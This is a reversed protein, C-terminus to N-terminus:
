DSFDADIIIDFHFDTYKKELEEKVKAVIEEPEKCAFSIVMDFTVIKRDVDAYFAHIQLVEELESTIRIADAKIEKSLENDPNSAYIGITMIAGYEMYLDEAIARSLRHIEGATMQDNVEVHISGIMDLPGYNHLVLDYAGNVNAFGAVRKKIERTLETESREGLISRLGDMVMEIGSKIIILSIVAGLIGEISLGFKLSLIGAILTTTSLVADFMSDKGSATLTGAGLKKGTENLYFGWVAKVIVAVAIIFLSIVTYDAEVPHIIKVVSEKLSTAGAILVILAIIISTIYEIRGYGFPHERTPKKASLKTGVITLVSSLADGLNNVADLIIAISNTAWGILAKFIVLLVNVIIGGISARIIKKEREM